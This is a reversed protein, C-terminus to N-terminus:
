LGQIEHILIQGRDHWALLGTRPCFCPGTIVVGAPAFHRYIAEGGNTPFIQVLAGREGTGKASSTVFFQGSPHWNLYAIPEFEGLFGATKTGTASDWVRIPEPERPPVTASSGSALREGNPSWALSEVGRPHAQFSLLKKLEPLSFITVEDPVVNAQPSLTTVGLRNDLSISPVSWSRSRSAGVLQGNHGDFVYAFQNPGPGRVEFSLFVFRGDPSVALKQDGRRQQLALEQPKGQLEPISIPLLQSERVIRGTDMEFVSFAPPNEDSGPEVRKSAILERGSASFGFTRRRDASMIRFRVLLRWTSADIVNLFNGLGNVAVLRSGDPSWAMTSVSWSFADGQSRLDVGAIKKLRAGGADTMGRDGPLLNGLWSARAPRVAGASALAAGMGALGFGRRTLSAM